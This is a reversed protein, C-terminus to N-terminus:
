RVTQGCFLFVSVTLISTCFQAPAICLLMSLAKTLFRHVVESLHVYSQVLKEHRVRLSFYLVVDAILLSRPDLRPLLHDTM